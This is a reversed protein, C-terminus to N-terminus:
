AKAQITQSRGATQDSQERAFDRANPDNEKDRMQQANFSPDQKSTTKACDNTADGYERNIRTEPL